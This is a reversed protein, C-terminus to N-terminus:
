LFFFFFLSASLERHSSSIQPDHDCSSRPSGGETQFPASFDLHPSNPHRCGPPTGEGAFCWSVWSWWCCFDSCAAPGGRSVGRPWGSNAGRAFHLNRSSGAASRLAGWAGRLCQAAGRDGLCGPPPGRGRGWVARAPRRLPTAEAWVGAWQKRSRQTKGLTGPRDKGPKPPVRNKPLLKGAHLICVRTSTSCMHNLWDKLAPQFLVLDLWEWRAAKAPM